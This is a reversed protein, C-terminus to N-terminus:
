FKGYQASEEVYDEPKFHHRCVVSHKKPQFKDRRIAIIWAKKMKEDRPFRSGGDTSCLPV